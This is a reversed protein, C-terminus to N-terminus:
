FSSRCSCRFWAPWRIIAKEKYMKAQEEAITDADGYYKAKIRNVAPQIEVMKISNKQLWVSIPLLVIKSLLTFLLIACGYSSTLAYFIRLLWAFPVCIAYGLTAFM